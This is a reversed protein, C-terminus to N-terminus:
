DRGSKSIETLYPSQSVVPKSDFGKLILGELSKSCGRLLAPDKLYILMRM